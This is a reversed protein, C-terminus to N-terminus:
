QLWSMILRDYMVSINRDIFLNGYLVRLFLGAIWQRTSFLELSNNQLVFRCSM